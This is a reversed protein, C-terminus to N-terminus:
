SRKIESIQVPLDVTVPINNGYNDVAPSFQWQIVAKAVRVALQEDYMDVNIPTVQIPTGQKDIEIRVTVTRGVEHEFAIPQVTYTPEVITSAASATSAITLAALLATTMLTKM